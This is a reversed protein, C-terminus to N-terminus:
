AAALDVKQWHVVGLTVYAEGLKDDLELAKNIADEVKPIEEDELLGGYTMQLFLSDALGVWALAYDPDLDIAQRFYGVAETLAGTSRIAMRVHGLLYAQHAEFNETPATALRRQEAPSLEAQLSDTIVGSVENRIDFWNRATLDRDYSHSWAQQDEQADILVVNIRVQDLVREVSGKLIYAAGLKLAMDPLSMDQDIRDSSERAIIKLDHLNQLQTQLDLRMGFAFMANNPDHGINDFPLIAISKDVPEPTHVYVIAIAWVAALSAFLLYDRTHLSRDFTDAAGVPPTRVIGKRTVDYFWSVVLAIPFGVFAAVFVDRLVLHIVGADIALDAVQITVWAAVIYLVANPLVRRRGVDGIFRGIRGM